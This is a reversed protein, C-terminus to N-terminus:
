TLLAVSFIESPLFMPMRYQASMLLWVCCGSGASSGRLELGLFVEGYSEFLARLETEEVSWNINRVFLTRSPHEGFPHEGALSNGSLHAPLIGALQGNGGAIFHQMTDLFQRQAALDGALQCPTVPLALDSAFQPLNM